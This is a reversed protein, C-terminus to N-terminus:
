KEKKTHTQTQREREIKDFTVKIIDFSDNYKQNKNKGYSQMFNYETNNTPLLINSDFLVVLYRVPNDSHYEIKIDYRYFYEFTLSEHNFSAHFSQSQM